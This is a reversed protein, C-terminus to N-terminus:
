KMDFEIHQFVTWISVAQVTNSVKYVVHVYVTLLLSNHTLTHYPRQAKFIIM